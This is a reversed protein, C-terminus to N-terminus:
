SSQRDWGEVREALCEALAGKTPRRKWWWGKSADIRCFRGVSSDNDDETRALFQEDSHKVHSRLKSLLAGHCAQLAIELADRSTLDNTYDDISATYSDIEVSLSRWASLEREVSVNTAWGNARLVQDIASLAAKDKADFNLIPPEIM